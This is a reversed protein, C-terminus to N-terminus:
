RYVQTSPRTVQPDPLVVVTGIEDATELATSVRESGQGTGNRLGGELDGSSGNGNSRLARTYNSVFSGFKRTRLMMDAASGTTLAGCLPELAESPCPQTRAVTSHETNQRPPPPTLVGFLCFWSSAETTLRLFTGGGRTDDHELHAAVSYTFFCGSSEAHVSDCLLM